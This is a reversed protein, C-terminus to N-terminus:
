EKNVITLVVNGTKQGSEVYNFAETIRDLPYHRDIVPKFSGDALREAIYRISRKIDTPIPFVVKKGAKKGPLKSTFPTSLALFPNQGNPGLESSLYVGPENMIPLCKKFTSKGVADLIFDYKDHDKTFDEIEYDIVRNAGLSRILSVNKTNCVATVYVVQHKLFQLMASGIAGTAGNLLVKHNKQIGIKNIFNCAYHAGELSAAALDYPIGDPILAVPLNESIVLYEAHSSLGNDMFGFVRDGPKFKSVASGSMEVEGAFDSGTVPRSPRGLGTFFRMIFPQARLIGCDTRNVTSAHIKVLIEYDGPVPQAIERIQLSEPPGYQKRIAAKM